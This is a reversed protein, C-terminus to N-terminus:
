RIIIILQGIANFVRIFVNDGKMIDGATGLIIEEDESNYIYTYMADENYAEALVQDYLFGRLKGDVLMSFYRMTPDGSVAVVNGYSFNNDAWLDKNKQYFKNPDSSRFLLRFTTITGYSDAVYQIYDGEELDEIKVVGYGFDESNDYEINEKVALMPETRGAFHIEYCLEDDENITTVIKKVIGTDGSSASSVTAGQREIVAVAANGLEDFDYFATNIPISYTGTYSSSLKASYKNFKGLESPIDFFVTDKSVSWTEKVTAYQKIYNRYVYAPTTNRKDLTFNEIDYGAYNQVSTKDTATKLEMLEGNGTLEYMVLQAKVQDGGDKLAAIFKDEDYPTGNLLVKDKCPYTIHERSTTYLKVFSEETDIDFYGGFMYAYDSKPNYNVAVLRGLSDCYYAARDGMEPLDANSSLLSPAVTYWTGDLSYKTKGDEEMTAVLTGKVFYDLLTIYVREQGSSTEIEAIELVNWEVISSFDVTRNEGYPRIILEANEPIEYIGKDYKGYIKMDNANIADVVYTDYKNIFLVNNGNKDTLVTLSHADKLTAELGISRATGAYIMNLIVSSGDDIKISKERGDDDYRLSGSDASIINEPSLTKVEDSGTATVFVLTGEEDEAYAYVEYGLLDSANTEGANYNVGDILVSNRLAGANDYIGTIDNATIRGKIYSINRHHKLFTDGPETVYEITDSGNQAAVETHLMNFLLDYAEGYTMNGGGASVGKLIGSSHAIQMYGEVYGGKAKAIVNYGLAAVTSKVAEHYTIIDNPRFIRDPAYEVIGLMVAANVNSSKNVDKFYTGSTFASTEYGFLDVLTSIFESRTIEKEATSTTAVEAGLAKFLDRNNEFNMSEAAHAVCFVPLFSLVLLLSIISKKM